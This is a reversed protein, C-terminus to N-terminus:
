GTNILNKGNKKLHLSSLIKAAMQASDLLEKISVPPSAIVCGTGSSPATKLAKWL